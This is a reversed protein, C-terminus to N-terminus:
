VVKVFEERGTAQDRGHDLRANAHLWVGRAQRQLRRSQQLLPGHGSQWGELSLRQWLPNRGRECEALHQSIARLRARRVMAEPRSALSPHSEPTRTALDLRAIQQSVAETELSNARLAVGSSTRIEKASRVQCCHRRCTRIPLRGSSGSSRGRGSRRRVRTPRRRSRAATCGNRIWGRCWNALRQVPNTRGEYGAHAAAQRRCRLRVRRCPHDRDVPRGAESRRREDRRCRCM